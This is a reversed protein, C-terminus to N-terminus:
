VGTAKALACRGHMDIDPDEPTGANASSILVTWGQLDWPGVDLIAVRLIRRALMKPFDFYMPPRSVHGYSIM